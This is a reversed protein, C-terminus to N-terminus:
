EGRMCITTGANRELWSSFGLIVNLFPISAISRVKQNTLITQEPDKIVAKPPHPVKVPELVTFNYTGNGFKTLPENKVELLLTYNGAILQSLHLKRTFKGSIQIDESEEPKETM